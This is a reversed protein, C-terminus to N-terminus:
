EAICDITNKNPLPKEILPVFRVNVLDSQFYKGNRNKKIIRYSNKIPIIMIGNDNLQKILQIPLIDPAAGVHIVDYKAHPVYGSWGNACLIKVNDYLNKGGYYKPLYKIYHKKMNSLSLDTLGSFIDIGVVMSNPNSNVKLLECFCATLYGSGCGIDLVRNGPVCNPMLIELAKGHIHPASITQNLILGSPRDILPTNPMLFHKRNIKKMIAVVNKDNIIRRDYLYNVLANNTRFVNNLRAKKTKM